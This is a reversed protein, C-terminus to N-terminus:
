VKGVEELREVAEAANRCAVELWNKRQALEGDLEAAVIQRMDMLSQVRHYDRVASLMGLIPRITGEDLVALRDLARELVDPGGIHRAQLVHVDVYDPGDWGLQLARDLDKQIAKVTPLLEMALVRAARRRADAQARQTVRTQWRAVVIAVFIALVSGVAQIAAANRNLCELM